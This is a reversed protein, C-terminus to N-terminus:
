LHKQLPCLSKLLCAQAVGGLGAAGSCTCTPNSKLAAARVHLEGIWCILHPASLASLASSTVSTQSCIEAFHKCVNVSSQRRQEQKTRTTRSWRAGRGPHGSTASERGRPQPEWRWWRLIILASCVRASAVELPAPPDANVPPSILEWLDFTLASPGCM